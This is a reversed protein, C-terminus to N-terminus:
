KLIQPIGLRSPVLSVLGSSTGVVATIGLWMGAIFYVETHTM